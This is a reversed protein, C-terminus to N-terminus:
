LSPIRGVAFPATSIGIRLAAEIQTPSNRLIRVQVRGEVRVKRLDLGIHRLQVDILSEAQKERLSPSKKKIAGVVEVREAIQNVCAIDGARFVTGFYGAFITRM